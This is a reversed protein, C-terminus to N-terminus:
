KLTDKLFNKLNFNREKNEMLSMFGCEECFSSRLLNEYRIELTLTFITCIRGFIPIIDSQMYESLNYEVIALLFDLLYKKEPFLINNSPTSHDFYEQARRAEMGKSFCSYCGTYKLETGFLYIFYNDFFAFVIKKQLLHNLISCFSDNVRLLIVFIISINNNKIYLDLKKQIENKLLPDHYFENKNLSNFFDNHFDSTSYYIINDGYQDFKENLYDPIDTIFLSKTKLSEKTTLYLLKETILQEFEKKFRDKICTDDVQGDKKLENFIGILEKRSKKKMDSLDLSTQIFNWYGRTLVIKPEEHSIFIETENYLKLIM